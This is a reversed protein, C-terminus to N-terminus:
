KLLHFRMVYHHRLKVFRNVCQQIHQFIIPMRRNIAEIHKKHLVPAIPDTKMGEILLKTLLGNKLQALRDFSSTRIRLLKFLVHGGIGTVGLRTRRELLFEM